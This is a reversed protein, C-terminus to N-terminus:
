KVSNMKMSIEKKGLLRLEGRTLVTVKKKKKKSLKGLCKYVHM